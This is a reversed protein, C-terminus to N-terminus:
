LLIREMMKEQSELATFGFQKYLDHADSTKLLWTKCLALEPAEIITKMLQKSYGNGRYDPLIFVDMIYAFVAYDSAVRAFGIQKNSLYVGLCFSNKIATRVTEIDRGNAWYSETLFAHIAKIDLREKDRSIEIM